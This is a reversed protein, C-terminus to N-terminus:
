AVLKCTDVSPVYNDVFLGVCNTTRSDEWIHLVIVINISDPINLMIIHNYISYKVALMVDIKIHDDSKKDRTYYAHCMTISIEKSIIDWYYVCCKNM